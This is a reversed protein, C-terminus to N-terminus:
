MEDRITSIGLLGVLTTVGGEILQEVQGWPTRSAAGSEGGAGQIHVHPDIIGPVVVMGRASIHSVDDSLISLLPTWHSFNSPWIGVIKDGSLLIDSIGLYDPAWVEGETILTFSTQQLPNPPDISFIASFFLFLFSFNLVFSSSLSSQM